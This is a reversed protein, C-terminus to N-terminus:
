AENGTQKVARSEQIRYGASCRQAPPAAVSESSLSRPDRYFYSQPFFCEHSETKSRSEYNKRKGRQTARGDAEALGNLLHGQGAGFILPHAVRTALLRGVWLQWPADASRNNITRSRDDSSGSHAERTFIVGRGLHHYGALIALEGKGVASGPGEL